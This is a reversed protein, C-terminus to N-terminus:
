PLTLRKQVCRLCLPGFGPPWRTSLLLLVVVVVLCLLLLLLL